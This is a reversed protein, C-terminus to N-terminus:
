ARPHLGVAIQRKRIDDLMNAVNKDVSGFEKEIVNKHQESRPEFVVEVPKPASVFGTTFIDEHVVVKEGGKKAQRINFAWLLRAIAISVSNRAIFRGPCVRRGYGFNSLQTKDTWREPRFEFPSDFLKEDKCMSYFVPMITSGKPIWYGKYYDERTTAHPIGAPAIHRWRFNEEVVAQIYPLHELDEFTPLRNYGVISDLEQQAKPIFEPYALCALTFIQLTVNTTEVGADCLIGLDWSIDVDTLGEAQKANKFDKSWNWSSRELAEKMNVMHLNAEIQYWQEAQKKWTALFGPLYNLVPLADVIWAGVQGAYTFNKLVEHATLLQWEDGTEIRFGYVLVYVISAAFREYQKPFENTSLLNKLLVKSEMDQVPTYCASARPSLVSAELRQHLLFTEDFPRLMIHQGKCTLEGAMVMRPRSSYINARKGLLDRATAFDGVLIVTTGGFDASVLPGYKQIWQDFTRWPADKPAQHLNGLIPIRPPGPPLRGRRRKQAICYLIFLAVAALISTPFM